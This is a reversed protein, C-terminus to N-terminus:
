LFQLPLAELVSGTHDEGSPWSPLVANRAKEYLETKVRTLM